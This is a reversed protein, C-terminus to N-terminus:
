FSTLSEGAAKWGNISPPFSLVNKYGLLQLVTMGMTSRHGSSCYLVVPKDTPIKDLNEALSRLPINVANPLHSLAYEAPSRVDVLLMEPHYSQFDKLEKVGLLGYYGKPISQLFNEAAIADIAANPNSTGAVQTVIESHIGEAAATKPLSIAGIAVVWSVWFFLFIQLCLKVLKM